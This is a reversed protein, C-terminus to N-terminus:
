LFPPWKLRIFQTHLLIQEIIKSEHVIGLLIIIACFISPAPNVQNVKNRSTQQGVSLFLPTKNRVAM